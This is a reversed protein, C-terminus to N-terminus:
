NRKLGATAIVESALKYDEGTYIHVGRVGEVKQVYAITEAALHIGAARSDQATNLRETVDDGIDLHTYKEALKVAEQASTVPMVGAIICTKQHLGRERVYSM